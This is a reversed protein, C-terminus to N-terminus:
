RGFSRLLIVSEMLSPAQADAAAVMGATEGRRGPQPGVLGLATEAALRDHTGELVSLRVAHVVGMSARRMVPSPVGLM